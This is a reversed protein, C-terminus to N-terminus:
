GDNIKVERFQAMEKSRMTGKGLLREFKEMLGWVCPVQIELTQSYERFFM